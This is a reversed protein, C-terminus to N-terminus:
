RFDRAPPAVGGLMESLDTMRSVLLHIVGEQNQVTGFAMLATASRAAQRHTEWVKQKIILNAVGTEDELTM